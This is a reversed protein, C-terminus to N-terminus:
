KLYRSKTEWPIDDRQRRILEALGCQRHGVCVIWSTPGSLVLPLCSDDGM